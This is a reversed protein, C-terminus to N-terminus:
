RRGDRIQAVRARTVGAAAAVEALSHGAATATRISERWAEDAITAGDVAATRARTTVEVAAMEGGDIHRAAGRCVESRTVHIVQQGAARRLDPLAMDLVHHTLHYREIDAGAIYTAGPRGNGERARITEAVLTGDEAVVVGQVTEDDRHREAWEALPGAVDPDGGARRLMDRAKALYYPRVTTM